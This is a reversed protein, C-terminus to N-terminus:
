GTSSSWCTSTSEPGWDGRAYSGFLTLELLRAGFRSGVRVKLDGAAAVVRPPVDGAFRPEMGRLTVEAAQRTSTAQRM